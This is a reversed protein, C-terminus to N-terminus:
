LPIHRHPEAGVDVSPLARGISDDAANGELGQTRGVPWGQSNSGLAVLASSIFAASSVGWPIPRWVGVALLLKRAMVTSWPCPAEDAEESCCSFQISVVDWGWVSKLKVSVMGYGFLPQQLWVPTKHHGMGKNIWSDWITWLGLAWMYSNLWCRRQLVLIQSILPQQILDSVM